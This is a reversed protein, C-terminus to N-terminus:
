NKSINILQLKIVESYKGQKMLEQIFAENQEDDSEDENEIINFNDIDDNEDKNIKLNNEDDNKAEIKDNINDPNENDM